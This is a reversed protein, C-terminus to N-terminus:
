SAMTVLVAIEVLEGCAGILDGTVGGLWRRYFFRMALGIAAAVGVAIPDGVLMAVLLTFFAVIRKPL